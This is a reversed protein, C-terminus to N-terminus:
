TYQARAGATFMQTSVHTDMTQFMTGDAAGWSFGAEGWVRIGPVDLVVAHAYGLSGIALGDATVADGSTSRLAREGGGVWIQDDAYATHAALLLLLITRM